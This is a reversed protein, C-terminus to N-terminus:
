DERFARAFSDLIPRLLYDAFTRAGTQILVEAPMGPYLSIDKLRALEAPDIAIEAKFYANGSKDDVVRDPSIQLVRGGLTPTRRQKFATLRVQAPLEAHVVDIDLPSVQAEVILRDGEPVIDLIPAGPDIVGGVTFFRLGLVTGAIPARIESRGLVDAAAGLNEETETLQAQVDKLQDAVEAAQRDALSLMQLRTEGITQEARAIEAQHEGRSGDLLAAQRRLALLRSKRELGKEVM